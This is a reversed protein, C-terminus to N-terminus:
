GRVAQIDSLWIQVREEEICEDNDYRQQDIRAELASEHVAPATSLATSEIVSGKSDLATHFDASRNAITPGSMPTAITRPKATAFTALNIIRPCAM